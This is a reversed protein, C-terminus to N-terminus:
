WNIPEGDVDVRLMWLKTPHDNPLTEWHMIEDALSPVDLEDLSCENGHNNWQLYNWYQRIESKVDEPIDMKALISEMTIVTIMPIKSPNHM